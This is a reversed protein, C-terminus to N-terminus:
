VGCGSTPVSPCARNTDDELQKFSGHSNNVVSSNKTFVVARLALVRVYIAILALVITNTDIYSHKFMVLDDQYTRVFM